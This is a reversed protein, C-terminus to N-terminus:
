AQGARARRRHSPGLLFPATMGVSVTSGGVFYFAFFCLVMRFFLAAGLSDSVHGAPEEGSTFQVVACTFSFRGSCV